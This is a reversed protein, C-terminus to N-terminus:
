FLPRPAEAPTSGAVARLIVAHNARLIVAHNFRLIVAQHAHTIASGRRAWGTDDQACDCSGRM